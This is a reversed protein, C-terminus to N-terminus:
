PYLEYKETDAAKCSSYCMTQKRVIFVAGDNLTVTRKGVDFVVGDDLMVQAMENYKDVKTPDSRVKISSKRDRCMNKYVDLGIKTYHTQVYKHVELETADPMGISELWEKYAEEYLKQRCGNFNETEANSIVRTQEYQERAVRVSESEELKHKSAYDCAQSYKEEADHYEKCCKVYLLYGDYRIKRAARGPLETRARKTTSM